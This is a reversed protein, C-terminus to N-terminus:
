FLFSLRKIKLVQIKLMLITSADDNTSIVDISGFNTSKGVGSEAEVNNGNLTLGAGNGITVASAKEGASITTNKINAIAGKTLNVATKSNKGNASVKTNNVSVNSQDTAYVANGNTGTVYSM